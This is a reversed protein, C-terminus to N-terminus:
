KSNKYQKPSVGIYKKFYRSFHEVTSFGVKEAIEYIKLNTSDLLDKAKEIRLKNLYETLTVGIEKSFLHSMYSESYGIYEGLYKLSINRHYNNNLYEIIRCVESSANVIEKHEIENIEKEKLVKFISALVSDEDYDSKLIYDDAGLKFAKRVYQFDDFASLVIKAKIGLNRLSIEKLLGLGNMVPMNIDTLLIDIDNSTLIELAEEGNCCYDIIEMDYKAWDILKSFGLRVMKEDDVVLVRYM